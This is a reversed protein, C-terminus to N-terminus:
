GMEEEDNIKPALFYKVEVAGDHFAFNIALPYNEGFGIELTEVRGIVKNLPQLYGLSYQSHAPNDYEFLQLDDKHFNVQINSNTGSASVTFHDGSIALTMMDGGLAAAKLIRIFDNGSLHVKCKPDLPPLAPVTITSPDITRLEGEVNGLKANLMGTGEDAKLNLMEEPTGLSVLNRVVDIEFAISTEDLEWTDFAASDIDMQIMAVHSHDVVRIHLSNEKFDFKADEVVAKLTDLIKSMLDLRATVNLM